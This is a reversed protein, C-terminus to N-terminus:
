GAQLCPLATLITPSSDQAALGCHRPWLYFLFILSFLPRVLAQGAAMMM